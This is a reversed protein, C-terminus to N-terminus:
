VVCRTILELTRAKLRPPIPNSFVREYYKGQILYKVAYCITEKDKTCCVLQSLKEFVRIAAEIPLFDIDKSIEAFVSMKVESNQFRMEVKELFAKSLAEYDVFNTPTLGNRIAECTKKATLITCNFEKALYATPNRMTMVNQKIEPYDSRQLLQQHLSIRGRAM